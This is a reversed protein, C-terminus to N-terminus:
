SLAAALARASRSAGRTQGASRLSGGVLALGVLMTVWAAPEPIPGDGIVLTYAKGLGSYAITEDFQLLQTYNFADTFCYNYDPCGFQEVTETSSANFAVLSRDGSVSAPADPNFNGEDASLFQLSGDPLVGYEYEQFYGFGQDNTSTIPAPAYLEVYQTQQSGLPPPAFVSNLSFFLECGFDPDCNSFTGHVTEIVGAAAPAACLSTAAVAMLKVIMHIAGNIVIICL